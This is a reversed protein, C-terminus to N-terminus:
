VDLASAEAELTRAQVDARNGGWIDAEFAAAGTLTFGTPSRRDGRSTEAEVGASVQPWLSAWDRRAVAAAQMLRARTQAVDPNNALAAAIWGELEKDGYAEWWRPTEALAEEMQRSYASPIQAVAEPADRVVPTACGSLAVACFLGSAI